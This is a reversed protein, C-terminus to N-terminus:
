IWNKKLLCDKNLRYYTLTKNLLYARRTKKIVHLFYLYDNRKRIIPIQTSRCLDGDLMVTSNGMSHILIGIYNKSKSYRVPKYKKEINKFAAYLTYTFKYNNNIMFKVQESLKDQHWLDDSDCFCVFDGKSNNIAIQRAYAAGMNKELFIITIKPNKIWKYLLKRTGDTSFDDVIILNWNSYSQNLISNVSNEIYTLSNFSPMVITVSKHNNVQQKDM